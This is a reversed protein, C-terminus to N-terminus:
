QSREYRIEAESSKALWILANANGDEGLEFRVNYDPDATFITESIPSMKTRGSGGPATLYLQGETFSVRWGRYEGEYRKLIEESVHIPQYDPKIRQIHWNLEHKRLSTDASDRLTELSHQHAYGLAQEQQVDIHPKVGKGEWNSKTVPHEPYANPMILVFGHGVSMKEIPHAGGKTKEGIITARNHHKLTYTMDEGGSFTETSTLIYVPIDPLRTGPIYPLTWIQQSEPDVEKPTHKTILLKPKKHESFLYSEFLQVTFPDGGHCERLDFILADAQSLFQMTSVVLSGALSAPPFYIIKVYGINGQLYEIKPIGFNDSKVISWWDDEYRESHPDELAKKEIAEAEAPNYILLLHLDHSCKRLDNTLIEAFVSAKLSRDYLGESFQAQTFTAMKQGLDAFVYGTLLLEGLNEVVAKKIENSLNDSM